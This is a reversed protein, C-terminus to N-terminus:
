YNCCSRRLSQSGTVPLPACTERASCRVPVRALDIDQCRDLRQRAVSIFLKLKALIVRRAAVSRPQTAKSALYPKAARGLSKSCVSIIRACVESPRNRSLTVRFTSDTVKRSLARRLRQVSAWRGHGPGQGSLHPRENRRQLPAHVINVNIRPTQYIEGAFGIIVQPTPQRVPQADPWRSPSIM